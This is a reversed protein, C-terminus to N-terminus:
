KNGPKMWCIVCVDTRTQTCCWSRRNLRGILLEFWGRCMSCVASVVSSCVVLWLNGVVQHRSSQWSYWTMHPESYDTFCTEGHAPSHCCIFVNLMVNTLVASGL